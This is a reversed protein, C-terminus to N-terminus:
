PGSEPESQFPRADLPVDIVFETGTAPLSEVSVSGGHGEAVARVLALGLGWGKVDSGQAAQSRRFAEFLQEREAAPIFSGENHVSVQARDNGRRVSITIPRHRDGYKIANTLLNEVARGLAEASWHGNVPEPAQVVFRAGHALELTEVVSRVIEGLECPALELSLRAGSGARSVDLLTRLMKDVKDINEDVRAAWRRVGPDEPRRLILAAGARAAGLPGRLDHALTMMIRERLGESALVYATAADSVATDFSSTIVGREEPTLAGGDELVELVVDRLLQYERIVDKLAFRTLRVREGGHEQPVSSGETATRRPHGPSLAEVLHSLFAPLTDILIPDPEREAPPIEARVRGAWLELVRERSAALRRAAGGRSPIDGSSHM